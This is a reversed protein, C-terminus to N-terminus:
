EKNLWFLKFDDDLFGRLVLPLDGGVGGAFAAHVHEEVRVFEDVANGRDLFHAEADRVGVKWRLIVELPAPLEANARIHLGRPEPFVSARKQTYEPGFPHPPELRVFRPEFVGRNAA